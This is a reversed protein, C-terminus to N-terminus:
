KKKAPKEEPFALNIADRLELLQVKLTAAKQPNKVVSLLMSLALGTFM